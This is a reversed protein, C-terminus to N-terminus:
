ATEINLEKNLRLILKEFSLFVTLLHLLEKKRITDSFDRNFYGNNIYFDITKKGDSIREMHITDDESILNILDKDLIDIKYAKTPTVLSDHQIKYKGMPHLEWQRDFSELTDQHFYLETYVNEGM